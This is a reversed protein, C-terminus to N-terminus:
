PSVDKKVHQSSKIQNEDANYVRIGKSPKRRDERQNLLTTRGSQELFQTKFKAIKENVMQFESKLDNKSQAILERFNAHSSQKSIMSKENSSENRPEPIIDTPRAVPSIGPAPFFKSRDERLNEQSELRIQPADGGMPSKVRDTIVVDTTLNSDRETSHALNGKSLARLLHINETGKQRLM